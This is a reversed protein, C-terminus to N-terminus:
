KENILFGIAGCGKYNEVGAEDGTQINTRPNGPTLLAMVRGDRNYIALYYKKPDDLSAYRAYSVIRGAEKHRIVRDALTQYDVIGALEKIIEPYVSSEQKVIPQVQSQITNEIIDANNAKQIDNKKLYVFCRCMNGRPTYLTSTYDQKNNVLFGSAGKMKKQLAAWKNIEEYLNQDALAKAAEENEATVDAWIYANSKKISNIKKKVEDTEQGYCLVSFLCSFCLILTRIRM